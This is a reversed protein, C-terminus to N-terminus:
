RGELIQLLQETNSFSGPFRNLMFKVAIDMFLKGTSANGMAPNLDFVCMKKKLMM